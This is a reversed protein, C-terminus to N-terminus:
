ENTDKGSQLRSSTLILSMSLQPHSSFGLQERGGKGGGLSPNIYDCSILTDEPTRICYIIRDDQRFATCNWLKREKPTNIGLAEKEIMKEEEGNMNIKKLQSESEQGRRVTLRQEFCVPLGRSLEMKLM